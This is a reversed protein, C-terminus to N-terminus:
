EYNEILVKIASRMAEQDVHKSTAIANLFVALQEKNMQQGFEEFVEAPAPAGRWVLQGPYYIMLKEFYSPDSIKLTTQLLIPFDDKALMEFASDLQSVSVEEMVTLESFYKEVIQRSGEAGYELYMAGVTPRGTMSMLANETEGELFFLLQYAYGVVSDPISTDALFKRVYEPDVNEDYLVFGYFRLMFRTVQRLLEPDVEDESKGLFYIMANSEDDQLGKYIREIEPKSRAEAKLAELDVSEASLSLGVAIWLLFNLPFRFRFRIRKVRSDSIYLNQATM